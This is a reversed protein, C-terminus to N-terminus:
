SQTETLTEAPGSVLSSLHSLLPAPIRRPGLTEADICAVKVTAECCHTGDERVITQDFVLSAGRAQVLRSIVDLRENFRAPARYDIGVRRVAFLLGAEEKLHDQEYGIARLWETRAREMFRLYNAYFVVGGADTDEYYVRVPWHFTSSSPVHPSPL